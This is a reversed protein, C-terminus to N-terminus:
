AAKRNLQAGRSRRNPSPVRDRVRASRRNKLGCVETYIWVEGGM